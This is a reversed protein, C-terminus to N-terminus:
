LYNNSTVKIKEALEAIEKVLVEAVYGPKNDKKPMEYTYGRGLLQDKWQYLSVRSVSHKDAITQATVTDDKLCFDIVAQEKKEQTYEIESNRGTYLKKRNPFAEDVWM